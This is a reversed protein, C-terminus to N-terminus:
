RGLESEVQGGGDLDDVNKASDAGGPDLKPLDAATPTSCNHAIATSTPLGHVHLRAQHLVHVLRPM